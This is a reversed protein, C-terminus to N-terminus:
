IESLYGLDGNSDGFSEIPARMRDAMAVFLNAM